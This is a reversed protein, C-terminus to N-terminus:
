KITKRLCIRKNKIDDCVHNMNNEEVSFSQKHGRNKWKLRSYLLSGYHVIEEDEGKKLENLYFNMCDEGFCHRCGMLNGYIVWSLLDFFNYIFLYPWALFGRWGLLKTNRRIYRLEGINRTMYSIVVGIIYIISIHLVSFM